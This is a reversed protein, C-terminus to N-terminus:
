TSQWGAVEYKSTPIQELQGIPQDAKTQRKAAGLRVLTRTGQKTM